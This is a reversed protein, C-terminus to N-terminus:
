TVTDPDSLCVTAVTVALQREFCQILYVALGFLAYVEKIEM